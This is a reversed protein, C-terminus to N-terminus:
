RRLLRTFFVPFAIKSKLRRTVPRRYEDAKADWERAIELARLKASQDVANAALARMSAAKARCGAEDDLRDKTQGIPM